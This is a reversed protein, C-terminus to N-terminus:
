FKLFFRAVFFMCVGLADVCLLYIAAIFLKTLKDFTFLYIQFPITHCEFLTDSYSLSLTFHKRLPFRLCCFFFICLFFKYIFFLLMLVKKIITFEGNISSLRLKRQMKLCNPTDTHICVIASATAFNLGHEGHKVSKVCSSKRM